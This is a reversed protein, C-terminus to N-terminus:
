CLFDSQCKKKQQKKQPQAKQRRSCCLLITQRHKWKRNEVTPPTEKATETQTTQVPQTTQEDEPAIEPSSTKIEKAM